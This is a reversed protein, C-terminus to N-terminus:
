FNGEHVWFMFGSDGYKDDIHDPSWYNETVSMTTFPTYGIRVWLTRLEKPGLNELNKIWSSMQINLVDFIRTTTRVSLTNLDATSIKM